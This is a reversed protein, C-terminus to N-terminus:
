RYPNAPLTKGRKASATPAPVPPRRAASPRPPPEASPASAPPPPDAPPAASASPEAAPAVPPAPEPRAWPRPLFVVAGLILAGGALVALVRSRRPAPALAALKDAIEARRARLEDGVAAEVARAVDERSAILSAPEAAARLAEALSEASPFRDDPSKELARALVADLTTGAEPAYLSVPPAPEHLVLELAEAEHAGRFLRKHALAEWLVVGMAFVDARRDIPRGRVYEPALYGVKGKLVGETTAARAARVEKAVGFDTVRAAGDLGVLINQPSVDRHVLGLPAGAEDRLEHAAHLGACADLVVRVAVAAPLRAGTRAGHLILQGLSAGEVYDMVLQLTGDDEEVERVGVVHPHHIRSALRAEALFSARQRPDELLHPHPRKLAALRADGRAAGVFVSGAGGSALKLLPEHRRPSPNV